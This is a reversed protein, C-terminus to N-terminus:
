NIFNAYRGPGAGIGLFACFPSHRQEFFKTTLDWKDINLGVLTIEWLPIAM